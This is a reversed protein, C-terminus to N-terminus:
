EAAQPQLPAEVEDPVEIAHTSQHHHLPRNGAMARILVYFVPTLFIGFATVGLMGAFVAVGMAHRMEAGAGTSLVLPVVGMIFALSTMLIPRLRLRAAEIAADRPSRGALELERAFEVILIANKASLGVLVILGIQTFINNDGGTVWIGTMAALLSMPVILIIAIPLTLSEYQAALVLFVLLIALPFIILASNGAIIQQYTLDTWEFTFGKPLTEAAIREVAAQAQGSSFGPAAGGSIDASLFGNYRMAREPGAAPKVTLLAALPVMEGSSARVKLKGIDDAHARYPADAQVRVSYTRGFQNFDNVYLSGLYIQLTDFIDTVAVGLQRAKTRDVDAYLQPVNVQYSTFLNALEPAQRAKALFAKVAGDLAEYGQSSRDEVQLKFGGTTGLGQVPPPPFMVVFADPLGAYKANLRGAIAGASMGAETRQDFPKLAAFVIGSNTSNTFGNISLGPFSIAHEIGPDDMAIQSMDRIVQETRDLTAGDPLQAFGILYQKDQMPVFGGPVAQFLGYTVGVLGLYLGMMLGKRAVVRGLGDGYARTGRGFARNFGRFLWGLGADMIRTLRDKPADHGKLLLAALAPSLTLSNVASIVTSIAITLAFQKYFQGSLGSIFALPVFVAVLVLAIAIIPGSVERMARYTADKPALGAEINREVNEVVVIADDVVIGIALVLGFLSLANVSVGLLHMVAFTGVVSVPVALLPIISARWTQLFLIVVLVVLLVAELLTHIVSKISARVFQTPDYVISYDVGEPMYAKMEAMTARVTDSIAIANSGPAQFIPIAVASKNDLLSRLAYSAAGMEIRGLDRLRTVAGGQDSKVIIDGFEQESQLRGQANVSLQLDVGPLGPSAGVVGAAAQINQERIAQVVQGASLGREAVKHPDLWVRMSYDGSGFLQVQGVGEIRALRDKVNLGAYNRLYAMDYRGDPSLLHVVMTLDPSSKITTVGLRRVEEPLRPEAQAVRNQVLQQAKDPDTGLRFTITLTMVGDTTAQSGMYLMGEVGNVQEEIPTAVTEAIVKPSAGPYQARVVVTPPVVEPYESVPLGRLALLGSVFILISLVGAFVPRDIFFKSLNM